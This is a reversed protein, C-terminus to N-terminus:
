TAEGSRKRMSHTLNRGVLRAVLVTLYIQGLLAEFNALSRAFEGRPTIDGYGLTTITTISFYVMLRDPGMSDDPVQIDSPIHFADPEVIGIITFIVAFFSAVLLYVSISGSITDSGVEDTTFIDLGILATMYGLLGAEMLHGFVRIPMSLDAEVARSLAGAIIALSTLALCIVFHLHRKFLFKVSSLLVGALILDGIYFGPGILQFRGILPGIILMLLLAALLWSYRNGGHRRGKNMLLGKRSVHIDPITPEHCMSRNSTTQPEM